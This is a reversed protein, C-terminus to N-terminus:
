RGMDKGSGRQLGVGAAGGDSGSHNRIAAVILGVLEGTVFGAIFWGIM